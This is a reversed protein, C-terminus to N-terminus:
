RAIEQVENTVTIEGTIMANITNSPQYGHEKMVSLLSSFEAVSGKQLLGYILIKWVIEDYNSEKLLLDGFVEKATRFNGGECLSSIIIRYSELHPLYGSKTMSDLLTLADTLIKLRCCCDIISTYVDESPTLNANQMGMFFHKAEELRDVRCLCRIFCSYIDAALPLQRETIDELLVQLDKMDAIKWIDVSNDSSSKKVVLRLLVTYSDENPKWGKGVMVEFTSFAQSVLGLNAYGRILTNYTVLNPFVGRDVMQVIM